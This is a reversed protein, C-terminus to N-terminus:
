NPRMRYRDLNPAQIARVPRGSREYRDVADLLVSRLKEAAADPDEGMSRLEAAIEEDSADFVSEAAGGIINELEAAWDREIEEQGSEPETEAGLVKGLDQRTKRPESFM